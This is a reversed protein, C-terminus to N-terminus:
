STAVFGASADDISIAQETVVLEVDYPVCLQSEVAVVMPMDLGTIKPAPAPAPAPEPPAATPIIAM